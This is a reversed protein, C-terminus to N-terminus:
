VDITGLVDPENTEPNICSAVWYEDVSQSQDAAIADEAGQATEYTGIVVYSGDTQSTYGALITM